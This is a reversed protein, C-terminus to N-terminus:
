ALARGDQLTRPSFSSASPTTERLTPLRLATQSSPATLALRHLKVGRMDHTNSAANHLLQVPLPEGSSAVTDTQQMVFGNEVVLFQVVTPVCSHLRTPYLPQRTPGTTYTRVSAVTNPRQEACIYKSHSIPLANPQERQATNTQLMQRVPGAPWGGRQTAAACSTARCSPPLLRAHETWSM